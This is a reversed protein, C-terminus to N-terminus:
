AFKVSLGSKPNGVNFEITKGFRERSSAINRLIGLLIEPNANMGIIQQSIESPNTVRKARYIVLQRNEDIARLCLGRMYYRNFEGHALTEHADHPVRVAKGNRMETTKMYGYRMIDAAFDDEDRGETIVHGLLNLYRGSFESKIRNSIYQNGNQIDDTLEKFMYERTVDDLNEFLYTM